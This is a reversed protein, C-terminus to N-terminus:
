GSPLPEQPQYPTDSASFTLIAPGSCGTAGQACVGFVLFRDSLAIAARSTWEVPYEQATEDVATGNQVFWALAHPGSGDAPPALIDGMVLTGLPGHALAGAELDPAQSLVRQQWSTGDPSEWMAAVSGETTEPNPLAIGSAYYGSADATLDGVISESFRDNFTTWGDADTYTWLDPTLFGGSTNSTDLGVALLTDGSAAIDRFQAKRISSDDELKVWTVGDTSTLVTPFSSFHVTVFGMDGATLFEAAFPRMQGGTDGRPQETWTSGADTSIWTSLTLLGQRGQRWQGIAALTAGNAAVAAMEAVAGPQPPDLTQVSARTWTAGKDDSYWAAAGEKNSGTAIVREGALAFGTVSAAEEFPTSQVELSAVDVPQANLTPFPTPTQKTVMSERASPSPGPSPAFSPRFVTFAVIAVVALPGILSAITKWRSQSEPEPVRSAGRM